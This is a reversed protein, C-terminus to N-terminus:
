HHDGEIHIVENPLADFCGSGDFVIFRLLSTSENKHRPTIDLLLLGTDVVSHKRFLNNNIVLFGPVVQHQPHLERWRKANGHCDDPLPKFGELQEGTALTLQEFNNGIVCSHLKNALQEYTVDGLASAKM